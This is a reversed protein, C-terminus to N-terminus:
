FTLRGIHFGLKNKKKGYLILKENVYYALWIGRKSKNPLDQKFTKRQNIIDFEDLKGHNVLFISSAYGRLTFCVLSDHYPISVQIFNWTLAVTNLVIVFENRSCNLDGGIFYISKTLAMPVATPGYLQLPLSPLPEMVYTSINLRESHSGYSLLAYVFGQFYKVLKYNYGATAQQIFSFDRRVLITIRRYRSWVMLSEDPLEVFISSYRFNKRFRIFQKLNTKMNVMVLLKDSLYYLRNSRPLESEHLYNSPTITSTPSVELRQSDTFTLPFTDVKSQSNEASSAQNHIIEIIQLATLKYQIKISKLRRGVSCEHKICENNYVWDPLIKKLEIFKVGHVNAFDRMSVRRNKLSFLETTQDRKLATIATIFDHLQDESMELTAATDTFSSGNDWETAVQKCRKTDLFTDTHPDIMIFIILNYWRLKLALTAIFKARSTTCDNKSQSSVWVKVRM